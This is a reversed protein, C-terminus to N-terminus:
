ISITNDRWLRMIRYFKASLMCGLFCTSTELGKEENSPPTQPVFSDPLPVPIILRIGLGCGRMPLLDPVSRAMELKQQNM